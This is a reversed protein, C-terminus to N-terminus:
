RRRASAPQLIAFALMTARVRRSAPLRLPQPASALSVPRTTSVPTGPIVRRETRRTQTSVPAPVQMASEVRKANTQRPAVSRHAEPASGARVPKAPPALMETTVLPAMQRPPIRAFGPQRIAPEPLTVNTLLPVSSPLAARARVVKARRALPVSTAM